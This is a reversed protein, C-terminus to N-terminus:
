DLVDRKYLLRGIFIDWLICANMCLMNHAQVRSSHLHSFSEYRPTCLPAAYQQHEIKYRIRVEIM